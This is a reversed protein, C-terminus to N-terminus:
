LERDEDAFSKLEYTKRRIKEMLYLRKQIESEKYSLSDGDLENAEKKCSLICILVVTIIIPVIKNMLITSIQPLFINDMEADRMVMQLSGM